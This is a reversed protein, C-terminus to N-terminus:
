HKASTHMQLLCSGVSQSVQHDGFCGSGGGRSSEKVADTQGNRGDHNRDQASRKHGYPM